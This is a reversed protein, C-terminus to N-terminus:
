GEARRAVGLARMFRDSGLGSPGILEALRGEGIRRMMEMQFLRDQAHVFGLAFWADAESQASIHPIGYRDRVIKVPASLGALRLEGTTQPLSARLFLFGGVVVGIIAILVGGIRWIWKM